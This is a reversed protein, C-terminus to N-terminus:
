QGATLSLLLFPGELTSTLGASVQLRHFRAPGRWHLQHEIDDASDDRGPTGLDLAQGPALGFQPKRLKPSQSTSGQSGVEAHVAAQRRCILVPLGLISFTQFEM